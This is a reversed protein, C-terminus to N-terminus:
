KQIITTSFISKRGVKIDGGDQIKQWFKLPITNVPWFDILFPMESLGWLRRLNKLYSSLNEHRHSHPIESKWIKSNLGNIGARSGSSTPLWSGLLQGESVIGVVSATVRNMLARLELRHLSQYNQLEMLGDIWYDPLRDTTVTRYGTWWANSITKLLVLRCYNSLTLGCVRSELPV